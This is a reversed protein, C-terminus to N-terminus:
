GSSFGRWDRSARSTSLLPCSKRAHRGCRGAPASRLHASPAPPVDPWPCPSRADTIAIYPSTAEVCEVTMARKTYLQASPRAIWYESVTTASDIPRPTSSEGGERPIVALVPCAAHRGCGPLIGRLWQRWFQPANGPRAGILGLYRGIRALRRRKKPQNLSRNVPELERPAEPCCCCSQLRSPGRTADTIPLM